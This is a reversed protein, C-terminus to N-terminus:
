QIEIIIHELFLNPLSQIFLVNMILLNSDVGILCSSELFFSKSAVGIVFRSVWLGLLEVNKLLRLVMFKTLLGVFVTFHVRSLLRSDKALGSLFNGGSGVTLVWLVDAAGWPKVLLSSWDYFPERRGERLEAQLMLERESCVPPLSM